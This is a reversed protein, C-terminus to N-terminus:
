PRRVQSLLIASMSDESCCLQAVLLVHRAVCSRCDLKLDISLLVLAIGTCSQKRDAFLFCHSFWDSKRTKFLVM